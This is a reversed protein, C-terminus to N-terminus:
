EGNYGLRVPVHSQFVYWLLRVLLERLGVMSLPTMVILYLYIASMVLWDPLLVYLDFTYAVGDFVSGIAGVFFFVVAYYGGQLIVHGTYAIGRM